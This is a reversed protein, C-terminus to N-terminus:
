KFLFASIEAIEFREDKGARRILAAETDADPMDNCKTEIFVRDFNSRGLAHQFERASTRNILDSSYTQHCIADAQPETLGNRLFIDKMEEQDYLLHGWAPFPNMSADNFRFSRGESDVWVHHGVSSTWIPNGHLFACGGPKLTKRIEELSQPMDYLHELIALGVIVDVKEEGIDQSLRRADAVGTVISGTGTENDLGVDIKDHQTGWAEMNTAIVQAGRAHFFNALELNRDSGIELVTKNRIPVKSAVKEGFTIRYSM